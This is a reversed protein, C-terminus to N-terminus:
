RSQNGNPIIHKLVGKCYQQQPKTLSNQIQLKANNIVYKPRVEIHRKKSHHKTPYDALNHKGEKCHVHFKNQQQRDQIWYFQIDTAKSRRQVVTNTIIGVACKNGFQIPTPEQKHGMEHLETHM